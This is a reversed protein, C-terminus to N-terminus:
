NKGYYKKRIEILIDNVLNVDIHEPLTSKEIAEKLKKEKAEKFCFLHENTKLDYSVLLKAENSIKDMKKIDARIEASIRQRPYKIPFVKLLYCYHLYLGYFGKYKPRIYNKKNVEYKTNGFVEIFPIRPAFTTEIRENIKAISYEDGFYREIRINKKYGKRRISIKDYRIMVEYDMAKM